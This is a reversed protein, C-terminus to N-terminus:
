NGGLATLVMEADNLDAQASVLTNVDQLTWCEATHCTDKKFEMAAIQAKLNRITTKLQTKQLAILMANQSTVDAQQQQLPAIQKALQKEIEGALAHEAFPGAL